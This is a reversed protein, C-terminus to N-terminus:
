TSSDDVDDDRTAAAIAALPPRTSCGIGFDFRSPFSGTFQRMDTVLDDQDPHANLIAVTTPSCTPWAALCQDTAPAARNAPSARSGIQDSVRFEFTFARRPGERSCISTEDINVTGIVILNKPIPLLKGALKEVWAGDVKELSPLVPERSEIGSLFDAFYREVHALEDRGACSTHTAPDSHAQLLFELIPPVAM